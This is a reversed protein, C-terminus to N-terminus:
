EADSVGIDPQVEEELEVVGKKHLLRRLGEISYDNISMENMTTKVYRKLEDRTMPINSKVTFLKRQISSYSTPTMEILILTTNSM